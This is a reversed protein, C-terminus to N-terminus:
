VMNTFTAVSSLKDDTRRWIVMEVLATDYWLHGVRLCKDFKIGAHIILKM